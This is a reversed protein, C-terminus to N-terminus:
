PLTVVIAREGWGCRWRHGRPCLYRADIGGRETVRVAYPAVPRWGEAAPDTVEDSADMCVECCDSACLTLAMDALMQEVQAQTMEVNDRELRHAFDDMARVLAAYEPLACLRSHDFARWDPSGNTGTM